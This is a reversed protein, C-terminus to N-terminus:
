AQTFDEIYAYALPFPFPFSVVCALVISNNILRIRLYAVNQFIILM